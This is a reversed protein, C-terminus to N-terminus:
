QQGGSGGDSTSVKTYSTVKGDAITITSTGYVNAVGGEEDPQVRIDATIEGSVNSAIYFKSSQVEFDGGDTWGTKALDEVYTSGNAEFSITWIEKTPAPFVRQVKCVRRPM